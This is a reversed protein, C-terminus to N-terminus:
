HKHSPGLDHASQTQNGRAFRGPRFIATTQTFPVKLRELLQRVAPEDPALLRTTEAALELHLNGIAWGIGAAASPAVDLSIEVLPEPEQRLVYRHTATQWFVEGDKLPTSLEFGFEVGDEAVGRWLRKAVQIRTTRLAIEQLALNPDALAARILQLM